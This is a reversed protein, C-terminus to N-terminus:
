GQRAKGKYRLVANFEQDEQRWRGFIPMVPSHWWVQSKKDRKKM